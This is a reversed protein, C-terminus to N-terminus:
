IHMFIGTNTLLCRDLLEGMSEGRPWGRSASAPMKRPGHYPCIGLSVPFNFSGDAWWKVKNLDLIELDIRFM